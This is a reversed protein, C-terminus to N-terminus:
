EPRQLDLCVLQDRGRVYLLGDSLVPPSWAPHTILPRPKGSSGAEALTVRAVPRFGRPTAEIVILEGYEALVILHGDVYLLTTRGLKPESWALEGTSYDVAVLQADGSGSGSCGYLYGDHYVPTAWHSRLTGRRGPPDKRLVDYGGPKVRLLAAGPEYSETVFVTDDVVVPTAAIVSEIKRARWPFEFDVKGTRPEFGVLGGRAFVFGWRREGITRVIPSSYSALEDTIRYRVEGTLKDFAVIGSGSGRVRGSRVDPSGPASGGIPVILLQGEVVPTSAVGFFNQVVAFDAATDVDWLLRGEAVRHCRLRGEAGFTYVRGGDVVPSSRPGNSFGYYDQYDTSYESRWLERGTAANLCTLRARDAYRDFLFLRGGAVAPRSYGEGIAMRWRVPPGNEPWSLWISTERIEQPAPGASVLATLALGGAVAL